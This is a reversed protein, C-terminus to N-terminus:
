VVTEPPRQYFAYWSDGFATAAEYFEAGIMYPAIKMWGVNEDECGEIPEFLEEPDEDPEEEPFIESYPKWNADIFNVHSGGFM